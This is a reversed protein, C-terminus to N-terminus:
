AYFISIYHYPPAAINDGTVPINTQAVYPLTSTFTLTCTGGNPSVTMCDTADQVVGTWDDPLTASVNLASTTGTNTVTLNGSIGNV